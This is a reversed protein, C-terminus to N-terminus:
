LNVCRSVCILPLAVTVIGYWKCNETEEGREIERERERERERAREIYRERM